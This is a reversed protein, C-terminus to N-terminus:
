LGDKNPKFMSSLVGDKDMLAHKLAGLVHLLLLPIWLHSFLEHMVELAQALVENTTMFSPIILSGIVLDKGEAWLLVPGTLVGGAICVLLGIKVIKALLELSWHQPPTAAFGQKYRWAVRLLLPVGLVVGWFVHSHMLEGRLESTAEAMQEGNIFLYVFAAATFWHIIISALKYGQLQSNM